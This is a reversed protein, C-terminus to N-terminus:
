SQEVAVAPARCGDEGGFDEPGIPATAPEPDKHRPKDDYLSRAQAVENLEQARLENLKEDQKRLWASVAKIKAKLSQVRTKTEQKMAAAAKDADALMDAAKQRAEDIIRAAEDANAKLLAAVEGEVTANDQHAKELDGKLQRLELLREHYGEYTDMFKTKDTM